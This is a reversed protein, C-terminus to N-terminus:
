VFDVGKKSFINSIRINSGVGCIFCWVVFAHYIRYYKLTDIFIPIHNRYMKKVNKIVLYILFWIVFTFICIVYM